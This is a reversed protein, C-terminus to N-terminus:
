AWGTVNRYSGSIRGSMSRNLQAMQRRYSEKYVEAQDGDYEMALYAATLLTLLHECQKPIDIQDLPSNPNVPVPSRRYTLYFEGHTGAPFTIEGDEMCICECIEGAANTPAETFCLFDGQSKVDSNIIRGYPDPIYDESPSYKDSFTILRVIFFGHAGSLTVTASGGYIFGKVIISSSNFDKTFIYRSDRITIRGRGSLEISYCAGSIGFVDNVGGKHVFGEITNVATMQPIFIKVTKTVARDAFITNQARKAFAAVQADPYVRNEFGLATVESKLEKFTM